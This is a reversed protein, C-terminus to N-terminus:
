NHRNSTSATFAAYTLYLGLLLTVALRLYFLHNSQLLALPFHDAIYLPIFLILLAKLLTLWGLLTVVITLAGGRWLNHSLVMALGAFLTFVGVVLLLPANHALETVDQLIVGGNVLMALSLIICYLGLLKALFITRPLM